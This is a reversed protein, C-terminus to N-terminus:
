SAKRWIVGPAWSVNDGTWTEPEMRMVALAADEWKRREWDALHPFADLMWDGEGVFARYAVEGPTM